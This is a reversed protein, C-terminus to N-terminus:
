ILSLFINFHDRKKTVHILYQVTIPLYDNNWPEYHETMFKKM